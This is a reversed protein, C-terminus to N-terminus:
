TVGDWTNTISKKNTFTLGARKKLHFSLARYHGAQFITAVRLFCTDQGKRKPKTVTFICHSESATAHRLCPLCSMKGHHAASTPLDTPIRIPSTTDTEGGPKKEDGLVCSVTLHTYISAVLNFALSDHISPWHTGQTLAIKWIHSIKLRPKQLVDHFDDSRDLCIRQANTLGITVHDREYSVDHLPSSEKHMLLRM